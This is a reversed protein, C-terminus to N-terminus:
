KTCSQYWGVLDDFWNLNIDSMLDIKVGVRVYSFVVSLNCVM